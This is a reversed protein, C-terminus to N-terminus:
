QMTDVVNKTDFPIDDVEEEDALRFMVEDISVSGGSNGFNNLVYNIVAVAEEESEVQAPMKENYIVSNVMMEKHSGRLVQIAARVKDANLYDSEALPPIKGPIGEGNAQHCVICKEKYIEEGVLMYDEEAISPTDQTETNEDSVEDSQEEDKGGGCSTFIILSLGAVLLPIHSLIKKM